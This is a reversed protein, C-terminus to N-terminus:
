LSRRGLDKFLCCSILFFMCLDPILDELAYVAGLIIKLDSRVALLILPLLHIGPKCLCCSFLTKRIDGIKELHDRSDLFLMFRSIALQDRVNFASKYEGSVSVAYPFAAVASMDHDAGASRIYTRYAIVRLCIEFQAGLIILKIIAPLYISAAPAGCGSECFAAQPNNM